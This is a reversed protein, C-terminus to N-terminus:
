NNNNENIMDLYINDFRIIGLFVVRIISNVSKM